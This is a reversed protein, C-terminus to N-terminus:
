NQNVLSVYTIGIVTGLAYHINKMAAVKENDTLESGTCEHYVKEALVAPPMNEPHHIVDAGKLELEEATPPFKKEGWRQLPPEVISKVWSAFLGAAIGKIINKTLTNM